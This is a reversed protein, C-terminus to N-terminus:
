LRAIAAKNAKLHRVANAQQFRMFDAFVDDLVGRRDAMQVLFLDPTENMEVIVPGDDTCAIDWGIMPVHRMLRAAEVALAKMADWQPHCFGTLLADTDPHRTKVALDLGAGSIM